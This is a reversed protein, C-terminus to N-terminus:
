LLIFFIAFTCLDIKNKVKGEIKRRFQRAKPVIFTRGVVDKEFELLLRSRRSVTDHRAQM